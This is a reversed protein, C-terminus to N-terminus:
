STLFQIGVRMTMEQVTNNQTTTTRIVFGEGDAGDLDQSLGFRKLAFYANNALNDEPTCLTSYQAIVAGGPVFAAADYVWGNGNHALLTM